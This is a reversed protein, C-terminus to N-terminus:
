VWWSHLTIQVDLICFLIAWIINDDLKPFNLYKSFTRILWYILCIRDYDKKEPLWWGTHLIIYFLQLNLYIPLLTSIRQLLYVNRFPLLISTHIDFSDVNLLSIILVSICGVFLLNSENVQKIKKFANAPYEVISRRTVDLM